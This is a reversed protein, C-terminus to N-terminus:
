ELIMNKEDELYEYSIVQSIILGVIELVVFIGICYYFGEDPKMVTAFVYHVVFQIVAATSFGSFIIWYINGGLKDGFIRVTQTPFIGFTGGYACYTLGVVIGYTWTNEVAWLISASCILLILAM